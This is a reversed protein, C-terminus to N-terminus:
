RRYLKPNWYDNLSDGLLNVGLVTLAIALGPFVSMWWARRLFEQANNLMFGWSFQNPDGLGLFSLSAEILIARGVHLSAHVIVPAMGNPLVHRLLILPEPLGLARAAAVYDMERLALVGARTLRATSSWYTLSLVMILNRLSSGFLAVVMLALFFRPMVQILETFRMLLDDVYNGYFGAVGGVLVGIILSAGAVLLGVLLSTRSGHVVGAFVDRGLNDTGFWFERSPPTLPSGVFKFPDTPALQNAFLAVFVVLVTLFLGLLATRNRWFRRWHWRSSDASSVNDPLLTPLSQDSM